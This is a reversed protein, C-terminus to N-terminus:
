FPIRVENLREALILLMGGYTCLLHQVQDAATAYLEALSSEPVSLLKIGYEVNLLLPM